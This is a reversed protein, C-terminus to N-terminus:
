RRKMGAHRTSSNLSIYQREQHQTCTIYGQLGDTEDGRICFEPEAAGGRTSDRWELTAAPEGRRTDRAWGHVMGARCVGRRATWTHTAGADLDKTKARSARRLVAQRRNARIEVEDHPREPTERPYPHMAGDMSVARPALVGGNWRGLPSVRPSAGWSAGRRCFTRMGSAHKCAATRFSPPPAHIGMDDQVQTGPDNARPEDFRRQPIRRFRTFDACKARNRVETERAPLLPTTNRITSAHRPSTPSPPLRRTNSSQAPTHKAPGAGSLRGRHMQRRPAHASGM